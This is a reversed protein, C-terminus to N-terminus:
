KTLPLVPLSICENMGHEPDKPLIGASLWLASHM